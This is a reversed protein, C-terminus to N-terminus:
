AKCAAILEEKMKAMLTNVNDIIADRAEIQDKLSNVKAKYNAFTKTKEEKLKQIKFKIETIEENQGDIIASYQTMNVKLNQEEIQKNEVAAKLATINVPQIVDEVEVRMKLQAKLAAMDEPQIFYEEVEKVKETVAVVTDTKNGKRAEAEANRQRYESSVCFNEIHGALEKVRSAQSTAGDFCPNLKFFLKGLNNYGTFAGIEVHVIDNESLNIWEINPTDLFLDSTIRRIENRMLWLSKLKVGINSLDERTIQTLGAEYIDVMEINPFFDRLNRPFKKFTNQDSHFMTVDTITKGRGEVHTGDIRKIVSETNNFVVSKAYCKYREFDKHLINRAFKFECEIDIANLQGLTLVILAILLKM